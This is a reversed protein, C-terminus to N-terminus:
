SAVGVASQEMPHILEHHDIRNATFGVLAISIERTRSGDLEVFFIRQWRGLQPVGDVINLSESSGLMLARAHSDGNAREGPELNVTRREFDDHRYKRSRPAFRRLQDELDRILLPEDENIVIGTTTHRTQINLIGDTIGSTEVLSIVEDTLDIFQKARLAEPGSKGCIICESLHGDREIVDVFRTHLLLKVGRRLLMEQLVIALIEYHFVPRSEAIAGFTKLDTLIQDFVEGQGHLQGCFNAVGGSTLDGGTVAFREVLAVKAGSRAAACAASIGAIGGGIVAVDAEYRVPVKRTYTVEDSAAAIESASIDEASGHSVALWGAAGGAAVSLFRRREM